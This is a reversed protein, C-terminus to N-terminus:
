GDMEPMQVDMFCADFKHPPKLLEIAVKGREACRVIAGFKKLAGAAVKLNVLNDDVVLIQKGNLLSKLTPKVADSNRRDGVGLAKQLCAIMMSLRLPKVIIDVYGTMLLLMTPINKRLKPRGYRELEIVTRAFALGSREGWADKDVLVMDFLATANSGSSCADVIKSLASKPNTSVEVEIGLRQLHYKAVDARIGRGDVVLGRMGYTRSTSSDAQMFPMFIHNQADRPIGVGIDEVTVLINITDTAEIESKFIVFNEWSKRGDVGCFGSLTDHPVDMDNEVLDKGRNLFHHHIDVLKKTEEILHVSVFIYGEETFQLNLSAESHVDFPVVELELRGSEIKAHDLVENIPSILAKGSAQAIMAFDQQTSDLDTDFLMELMGLVGNMPTRIEHSVTALFQSKAVDAAEARVKLERMEHYDDEVKEICNIAANIIHGVLLVIVAVGLATAIASWPPPPGHKFITIPFSFNTIDYVNVIIIQKSALQQLLKEVLSAIDFSAGLYGVTADIHDQPTAIPLLDHKYVAFTLVVRLKNSNLLKFPSTLVGKGSARARLINKRDEKGSMMDVSVIHSVTDQTFIVPAYEEQPPSSDLNEPAYDDKVSSQDETEMKKIRWGREKEFQEREFYTVLAYAVGGGTLPREFATRAAYQGGGFEGHEGHHRAWTPHGTAGQGGPGRYARGGGLHPNIQGGVVNEPEGMGSRLRRGRRNRIREIGRRYARSGGIGSIRGGAPRSTSDSCMCFTQLRYLHCCFANKLGIFYDVYQNIASPNKGHHLTSILIALARVHNLSVNFQDQLMRAREDCMNTLTEKRRAVINANKSFYIWVSISIGLFFGMFLIRKRWRGRSKPNPQVYQQKQEPMNSPAALGREVCIWESEAGAQDTEDVARRRVICAVSRMKVGSGAYPGADARM